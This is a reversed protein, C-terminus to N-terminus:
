SPGKIKGPVQVFQPSELPLPHCPLQQINIDLFKQNRHKKMKKTMQAYLVTRIKDASPKNMNHKEMANM